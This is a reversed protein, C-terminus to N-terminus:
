QRNRYNAMRRSDQFKKDPDISFGCIIVNEAAMVGGDSQTTPARSLQLANCGAVKASHAAFALKMIVMVQDSM